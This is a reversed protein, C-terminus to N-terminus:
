PPILAPSRCYSCRAQPSRHRGQPLRSRRQKRDPVATRLGRVSLGAVQADRCVRVAGNRCRSAGLCVAPPCGARTPHHCHPPCPSIANGSSTRDSSSVTIRGSATVLITGRPRTAGLHRTRNGAPGDCGFSYRFSRDRQHNGALSVDSTVPYSLLYGNVFASTGFASQQAAPRGNAIVRFTGGPM